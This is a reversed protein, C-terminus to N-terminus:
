STRNLCLESLKILSTKLPSKGFIKLSKQARDIYTKAKQYAQPLVKNKMVLQKIKGLDKVEKRGCFNNKLIRLIDPQRVSNLLYILPLTLSGRKLDLGLTKGLAKQTGSFDLCDDVIQFAMGFNLGYDSLAKIKQPSAQALIAAASCCSAILSATKDKIIKLYEGEKLNLDGRRSFQLIESQCMTKTTQALNFLIKQNNIKSLIASAQSYLYDGMLVALQNDGRANITPFKRRVNAGDIVDDHILSATHILEMAMALSLISPTIKQRSIKASFLVLAPRLRKGRSRLLRNILHGTSGNYSLIQKQFNVEFQALEKKIPQYIETLPM